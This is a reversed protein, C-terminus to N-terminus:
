NFGYGNLGGVENGRELTTIGARLRELAPANSRSTYPPSHNSSVMYNLRTISWISPQWGVSAGMKLLRLKPGNPRCLLSRNMCNEYLQEMQCHQGSKPNIWVPTGVCCSVQGMLPLWRRFQRQPLPGFLFHSFINEDNAGFVTPDYGEAESVIGEVIKEAKIVKTELRSNDQWPTMIETLWAETKQLKSKNPIKTAVYTATIYGQKSIDLALNVALPTNPGGATPVQIQLKKKKHLSEDPWGSPTKIVALSCRARNLLNGLTKGLLHDRKPAEGKWGILLLNPGTQRIYRLISRVPKKSTQHEIKLPIDQFESPVKLWTYSQKTQKVTIMTLKGQRTKALGYGVNLLPWFDDESSFAALPYKTKSQFHEIETGSLLPTECFACKHHHWVLINEAVYQNLKEGQYQPWRWRTSECDKELWRVTWQKVRERTWFEPPAQRQLHIM